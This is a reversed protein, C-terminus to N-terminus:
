KCLDEIAMKLNERAQAEFRLRFYATVYISPRELHTTKHYQRHPESYAKALSEYTELGPPAGPSVM